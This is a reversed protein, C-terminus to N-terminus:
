FAYLGDKQTLEKLKQVTAPHGMYGIGKVLYMKPDPFQRFNKTRKAWKKRIRKRKTRPFRFQERVVLYSSVYVPNGQLMQNQMM